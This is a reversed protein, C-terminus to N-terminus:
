RCNSNRSFCNDGILELMKELAIQIIVRCEPAVDLAGRSQVPM